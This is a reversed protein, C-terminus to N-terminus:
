RKELEMQKGKLETSFIKLCEEGNKALIVEHNRAELADKYSEAVDIDDEAILIRM